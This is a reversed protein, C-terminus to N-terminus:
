IPPEIFLFTSCVWGSCLARYRSLWWWQRRIWKRQQETRSYRGRPRFRRRTLLLVVCNWPFFSIYSRIGKPVPEALDAFQQARSKSKGMKLLIDLREQRERCLIISIKESSGVFDQRALPPRLKTKGIGQKSSQSATELETFSSAQLLCSAEIIRWRASSAAHFDKPLSATALVIM